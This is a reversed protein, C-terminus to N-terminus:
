ECRVDLSDDAQRLSGINTLNVYFPIGRGGKQIDTILVFHLVGFILINALHNNGLRSFNTFNQEM